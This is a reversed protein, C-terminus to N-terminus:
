LPADTLAERMQHHGLSRYSEFQRHDFFQDLTSDDPFQLNQEAYAQVDWPIGSTLNAELVVIEGYPEYSGTRRLKGIIHTAPAFRQTTGDAHVLVEEGEAPEGDPSRLRELDLGEIEIGLEERALAIAEGITGFGQAGDGAASVLYVRNCGRRLLEILGLNEWHGGDSVYLYSADGRFRRIVERWWWTWGPRAMRGPWEQGSPLNQVARPHPLWVGLRANVLAMLGGIAGLSKKGMGPSFAAGSIAMTALVTVDKRRAEPLRDLYDGTPIWGVDPGGIYDTSFVFSGARRASAADDLENLNVACCLLLEPSSESPLPEGDSTDPPPPGLRGHTKWSTEQEFDAAAAPIPIGPFTGSDSEETTPRSSVFARSLWRKYFPFLSWAHADAFRAWVALLVLVIAWRWVDPLSLYDPGPGIRFTPYLLFDSLHGKPGNASAVELIDVFVAVVVVTLFIAVVPVLVTVLPM